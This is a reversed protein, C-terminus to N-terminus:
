SFTQMCKIDNFSPNNVYKENVAYHNFATKTANEIKTFNNLADM